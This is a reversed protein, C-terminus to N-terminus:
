LWLDTNRDISTKPHVVYGVGGHMSIRVSVRHRAPLAVEPLREFDSQPCEPRQQRLMEAESLNSLAPLFARQLGQPTM